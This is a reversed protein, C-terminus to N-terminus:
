KLTSEITDLSQKIGKDIDLLDTITKCAHLVTAHDRNGIQEGISSLSNKTHKRALYMAIQRAQVVERKRSKTQIDKITLNYYKCVAEQISIISITKEAINVSKGVVKQALEINIEANTLTSQALLSIIVGELERVNDKVTEAIYNVVNEPIVLGDAQVKNLLITKRTQFDPIELEAHLGWKFRSLIRQDLGQLLKPERDSTLVLQKGSQHLHNFIHFFTNQTGTKGAFDQIDDLILMDLMQYFNLFDNVTNNRVADTYQIQFKNANVYLINKEPHFEETMLGIAHALHTKGLGSGGFIFIPNFITKGPDKAIALGASRALKNCSGEIFSEFTYNPNLQSDIKQRNQVSFPDFRTPASAQSIRGGDNNVTTKSTNEMLVTYKLKTGKGMVRTLTAKLLDFYKEELYEYFFMSPVQITITNNEWKQPVIPQFWTNFAAEQVIDKIIGLCKSWLIIHESATEQYEKMNFM